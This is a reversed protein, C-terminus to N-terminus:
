RRPSAMPSIRLCSPTPWSSRIPFGGMEQAGPAPPGGFRLDGRASQHVSRDEQRAGLGGQRQAALGAVGARAAVDGGGQDARHHYLRLRCRRRQQDHGEVDGRLKRVRRDPRREEHGWRLRPRGAREPQPVTRGGRLGRAQGQPGQARDRRYGQRHRPQDRQLRRLQAPDAPGAPGLRAHRVRARGGPRFLQRRGDGIGPRPRASAPSGPLTTELLCCACTPAM